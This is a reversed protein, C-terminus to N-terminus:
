RATSRSLARLAAADCADTGGSFGASFCSPALSDSADGDAESEEVRENLDVQEEELEVGEEVGNDDGKVVGDDEGYEDGADEGADDLVEKGSSVSEADVLLEAVHSSTSSWLEVAHLEVVM